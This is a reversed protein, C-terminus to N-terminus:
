KTLRRGLWIIFIFFLAVIPAVYFTTVEFPAPACQPTVEDEVCGFNCFQETSKFFVKCIGDICRTENTIVELTNNSTCQVSTSQTLAFQGQVSPIFMMLLIGFLILQKM